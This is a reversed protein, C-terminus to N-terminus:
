TPHKHSNDSPLLKNILEALVHLSGLSGSESPMMHGSLQSCCFFFVTKRCCSILRTILSYNCGTRLGAEAECASKKVDCNLSASSSSSSPLECDGSKSSASSASQSSGLLLMECPPLGSSIFMQRYRSDM